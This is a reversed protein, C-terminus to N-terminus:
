LSQVKMRLGVMGDQITRTIHKSQLLEWVNLDFYDNNTFTYKQTEQMLRSVCLSKKEMLESDCKRTNVQKFLCCVYEKFYQQQLKVERDYNSENM